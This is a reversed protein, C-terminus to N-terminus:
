PCVRFACLTSGLGLLISSHGRHARQAAWVTAVAVATPFHGTLQRYDIVPGAFKSQALVQELQLKALSSQTSPIGVLLTTNKEDLEGCSKLIASADKSPEQSKALHLFEISCLADSSEGAQLLLAGGGDSPDSTANPDVLPSLVPHMEDAGLLLLREKDKAQLCALYLAQEFANDESTTTVNAGQAKYQIALLGAIANHVSSVFLTPSAYEYHSDRLEDLFGHTETLCGYGTGMFVSRPPDQGEKVVQCGLALGIKSLRKLRRLSRPPLGQTMIDEDLMGTTANGQNLRQLSEQTLGSGTVCGYAMVSLKQRAQVAIPRAKSKGIVLSVNNGGFGFSNLLIRSLKASMAQTPPRIKLIPDPKRCTPTAPIIEHNLALTSIVAQLAGSAALPHGFCDKSSSAAPPAGFLKNIACAEARDNDKTGTGHLSIYDIASADIQADQLAQDMAAQAGRGEPHPGSAHFADCTHAAGLVEALAHPMATDAAELLLMAAAEGVTMGARDVHFPRAGQPDVLQLVRFGFYTLLCLADAGGALVRKAQKTRVLDLATKIALAGSSCATSVTLVPGPCKLQDQLYTAVTGTGHYRYHIPDPDQEKLRKETSPLGGTTCGVVIADPLASAHALAQRAAFLALAHTRPVDPVDPFDRVKGVPPSGKTNVPFDASSLRAAEPSKIFQLLQAPSQVGPAIVGLGTIFARSM